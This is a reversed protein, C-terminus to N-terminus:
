ATVSEQIGGGGWDHRSGRNPAVNVPPLWQTEVQSPRRSHSIFPLTNSDVFAHMPQAFAFRCDKLTTKEFAQAPSNSKQAREFARLLWSRKCFFAHTRGFRVQRGRLALQRRTVRGVRTAEDLDPEHVWSALNPQFFIVDLERLQDALFSLDVSPSILRVDDNLCLLLSDHCALAADYHMGIDRRKRQPDHSFLDAGQNPDKNNVGIKALVQLDPHNAVMREIRVRHHHTALLLTM